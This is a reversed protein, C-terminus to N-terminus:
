IKKPRVHGGFDELFDFHSLNVMTRSTLRRVRFENQPISTHLGDNNKCPFGNQTAEGEVRRM